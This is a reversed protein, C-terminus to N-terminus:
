EDESDRVWTPNWRQCLDTAIENEPTLHGYAIRQWVRTLHALYQIKENNIALQKAQDKTTNLCEQETFGEYIELGRNVLQTLSARYLLAIAARAEGQQWLALASAGIDEPLSEETIELGFLSSPKPKDARQNAKFGRLSDSLWHRYKFLLFLILGIVVVWLLVEALSAVGGFISALGKISNFLWTDDEEKEEEEEEDKDDSNFFKLRATKKIETEHFEDGELVEFINEKAELLNSDPQLEQLTYQPKEEEKEELDLASSPTIQFCLLLGVLIVASTSLIQSNFKKKQEQKQMLRRFAIEIDWAELQIRRNLYLAFGMAVYFPATVAACIYICTATIFNQLPTPEGEFFESFEFTVNEPLLAYILALLAFPFITELCRGLVTIWVAPSAGDSHLTRIRQKRREGKLGELAVIAADMSRTPSLRRWTLNLFIQFIGAKPLKKISEKVTPLDGFVANGLMFVLPLEFLPKLWWFVFYPLTDSAPRHLVTWIYFPFSLLLWVKLLPFFWRRAMLLGLDLAEWSRRPRIEVELSNLDM